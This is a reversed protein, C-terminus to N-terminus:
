GGSKDFHDYGGPQLNEIVGAPTRIQMKGTDTITGIRTLPVSQDWTNCLM